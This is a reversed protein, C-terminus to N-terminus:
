PRPPEDAQNALEVQLRLAVLRGRIAFEAVYITGDAAASIGHPARLQGPELPARVITGDADRTNPWGMTRAQALTEWSLPADPRGLAHCVFRDEADFVSIRGAVL